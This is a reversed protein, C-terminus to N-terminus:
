RWDLLFLDFLMLSMVWAGAIVQLLDFIEHQSIEIGFRIARQALDVNVCDFNVDPYDRLMVDRSLQRLKEESM